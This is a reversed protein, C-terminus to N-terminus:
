RHVHRRVCRYLSHLVAQNRHQQSYKIVPGDKKGPLRGLCSRNCHIISSLTSYFFLFSLHSFFPFSISSLPPSHSSPYSLLFLFPLIPFSLFPYSLFLHLLFFLSCFLIPPPFAFLNLVVSLACCIKVFSDEILSLSSFRLLRWM